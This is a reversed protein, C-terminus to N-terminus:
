IKDVGKVRPEIERIVIMRTGQCHANCSQGNIVLTEYERYKGM